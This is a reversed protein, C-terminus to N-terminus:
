TEQFYGLIALNYDYIDQNSRGAPVINIETLEFLTEVEKQLEEYKELKRELLLRKRQVAAAKKQDNWFDPAAIKEDLVAINGKIKDPDFINGM